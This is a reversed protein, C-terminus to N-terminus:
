HRLRENSARQSSSGRCKKPREQKQKKDLSNIALLFIIEIKFFCLLIKLFFIHFVVCYMSM